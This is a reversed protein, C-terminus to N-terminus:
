HRVAFPKADADYEKQQYAPAQAEYARLASPASPSQLSPVASSPSTRATYMPSQPQLQPQAVLANPGGPLRVTTQTQVQVEGEAIQYHHTTVGEGREIHSLQGHGHGQCHHTKACACCPGVAVSTHKCVIYYAHIM